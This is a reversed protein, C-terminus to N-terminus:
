WGKGRLLGEAIDKPVPKSYLYGQARNCNSNKLFLEQESKEVGEAIVSINLVKALHIMTSVIKQDSQNEMISDLFSKDIKLNNVPLRKLYNLSSYGTGFDDLSFTIGLEQLKKITAVTYELDDLAITETIEFELKKPDAKTEELVEYIMTLLESDRFQRASLNIAMTIETYGAEEWLKLQKCAQYMMKKGIAVILGNEEAIPIFEMPMILGKVPHEWRALAEFGVVKDTVLDIQPQYYVIFENNEIAKRLESQMEIKKMMRTNISDEFYCFNNKGNEKAIYMASDMNKILTQTTKGDRPAFTVGMSITMFFEQTALTFPYTFVKQLQKMKEEYTTIDTINQTLVVFEDGGIRALYDNEDMAERLRHSVDILMEDGFSHGLTDNINKFNDLDIDILAIVEDNRLTLMVSDLMETFAVRNPLETLSDTYALKRIEEKSVKLEEYKAYLANKTETVEEYAKKLERYSDKLKQRAQIAAKEAMSRKRVNIVLIISLILLIFLAGFLIYILNQNILNNESVKNVEQNEEAALVRFNGGFSSILFGLLLM